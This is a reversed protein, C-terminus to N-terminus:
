ARPIRVYVVGTGGRAGGLSNGSVKWGGGGGDGTGNEGRSAFGPGDVNAGTGRTPSRGVGGALNGAGGGGIALTAAVELFAGGGVARGAGGAGGNNTTATAGVAGAGGGGAAGATAGAGGSFRFSDATQADAPVAPLTGATGAAVASGQGAAQGGSSGGAGAQASYGGGGGGGVAFVTDSGAGDLRIGSGTGTGGVGDSGGAGGAGVTITYLGSALELDIVEILEGAGGGGAYGDASGFSGGGGGGAVVLLDLTTSGGLTMSRTITVNDTSGNLGYKIEYLDFEVDGVTIISTTVSGGDGSDSFAVGTSASAVAPPLVFTTILGAAAGTVVLAERRTPGGETLGRSELAASVEPDPSAGSRGLFADLTPVAPAAVELVRGGSRDFIRRIDGVHRVVLDPRFSRRRM